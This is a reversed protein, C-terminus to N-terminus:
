ATDCKSAIFGGIIGGIIRGANSIFILPDFAAGIIIAIVVDFIAGAMGMSAGNMIPTDSKYAVWYGGLMCLLFGSIPGVWSGLDEAFRQTLEKNSPGFIIVLIVLVLVGIVEAGIAAIIIRGYRLKMKQEEIFFILRYGSQKIAWDSNIPNKIAKTNLNEIKEEQWNM